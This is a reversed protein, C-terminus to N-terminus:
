PAELKSVLVPRLKRYRRVDEVVAYQNGWPTGTQKTDQSLLRWQNLQYHQRKHKGQTRVRKRRQFNVSPTPSHPKVYFPSSRRETRKWLFTFYDSTWCLQVSGWVLQESMSWRRELQVLFALISRRYLYLFRKISGVWSPKYQDSRLRIWCFLTGM